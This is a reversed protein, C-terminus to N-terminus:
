KQQLGGWRKRSTSTFDGISEEVLLRKKLLEVDPLESTHTAKMEMVWTRSEIKHEDKTRIYFSDVM